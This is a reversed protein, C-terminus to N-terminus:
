TQESSFYWDTKDCVETYEDCQGCFDVRFTGIHGVPWVGNLRAACDSCLQKPIRAPEFRPSKSRTM